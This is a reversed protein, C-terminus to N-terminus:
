TETASTSGKSLLLNRKSDPSLVRKSLLRDIERHDINANYIIHKRAIQAILIRAFVDDLEERLRIARQVFEPTNGANEEMMLQLIKHNNTTCEFSRLVSITGENSSNFAIDNMINLALVTGAQGLLKRIHEETIKQDQVVEHAFKLLSQIIEDCHDQTQKLTAYIVKQPVCYLTQLMIDIEDAELAGYQDVLARAVLEAYKLARLIRYKTKKVDNEDYDFIGRFKIMEHREKEVHELQKTNEKKEKQTPVKESFGDSQHLFPVNKESFNWEPYENLLELAASALKSIMKTNSRIFSLFLVITDNIGFCIHEMVYNLNDTNSSDKEFERNLAKAVFYAYTSKDYFRITFTGEIEYLIDAEVCCTLFDKEKLDGRKKVNYEAVIDRFVAIDISEAHLNFYMTQALYELASLYKTALHDKNCANLLNNRINTEFVLSITQTGKKEKAGERLFYKIYQISNGPTFTFLSTKDQALYDLTMKIADIEDLTKGYIKGINEVLADRTGKYIPNITITSISKEQLKEKVIDELDQNREKTTYLLLKGSGLVANILNEKAKSNSILDLNDIFVIKKCDDSQRYIEYGYEGSSAYQEEFLQKLMKDIRADRYNRNEIMLPIFGCEISRKYLYKLLASKGAGEGGTIRIAGEEKLAEFISDASIESNDENLSFAAGDTTVKPLVYYDLFSDSINQEDKLLNNLYEKDPVLTTQRKQFTWSNKPVFIGESVKWEYNHCKIECCDTDYIVANFEAAKQPDLEFKGGMIVHYESGDSFKSSVGESKHDHGFFTIDDRAIANRLMEKTNWECWEYHHHMVTIKLDAALDQSLKEAVYSPFYHFEKDTDTRTSFPASNLMRVNLTTGAINIFKIDCLQERTFCSKRRAYCFFPNMKDLEDQLHEDKEWKEIELATRSDEPLIIDHNGPVIIVPIFGCKLVTSMTSLLKGFLKSAAGVEKRTGTNTLDGSFCVVAGDYKDLANVADIAKEIKLFMTGDSVKCHMDSLHLILLKM